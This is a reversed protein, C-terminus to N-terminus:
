DTAEVQYSYMADYLKQPFNQYKEKYEDAVEKIYKEKFNKYAYFADDISSFRGINKCKNNNIKCTALYKNRTKDYTVGIPLDGRIAQNKGFLLNIRSDVFLITDRSYIKEKGHTIIDKDPMLVLEDTWKNDYYFAAFNQFNHFENSVICDKYTPSRKHFSKDYCRGLMRRWIDIADKYCQHNERTYKGVGFYGVGYVSRHMPNDIQGSRFHIYCKNHVITGDEFEISINKNNKYSVITMKYGQNNIGKEGTRDTFKM